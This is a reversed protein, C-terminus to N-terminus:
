TKASLLADIRARIDSADLVGWNCEPTPKGNTLIYRARDMRTLADTLVERLEKLMAEPPPPATFLEEPDDHENAAAFGDAEDRNAFVKYEFECHPTWVLWAVPEQASPLAALAMDCLTEFLPDPPDTDYRRSVRQAEIQEKSLQEAM